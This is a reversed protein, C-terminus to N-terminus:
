VQRLDRTPPLPSPWLTFQFAAVRLSLCQYTIATNSLQSQVILHSRSSCLWSVRFKAALSRSFHAAQGLLYSLGSSCPSNQATSTHRTNLLPRHENRSRSLGALPKAYAELFGFDSAHIRVREWELVALLTNVRGGVVGSDIGDGKVRGSRRSGRRTEDRRAGKTRRPRM